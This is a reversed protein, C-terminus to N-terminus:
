NLEMAKIVLSFNNYPSYLPFEKLADFNVIHDDYIENEM